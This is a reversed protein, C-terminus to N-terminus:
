PRFNQILRFLSGPGILRANLQNRNGSLTDLLVHNHVDSVPSNLSRHTPVQTAPPANWRGKGTLPDLSYGAAKGKETVSWVGNDNIILPDTRQVSVDESRTMVINDKINIVPVYTEFQSGLSIQTAGEASFKIVMQELFALSSTNGLASFGPDLIFNLFGRDVVTSNIAAGNLIREATAKDKDNFSVTLRHGQADYHHGSNFNGLSRGSDHQRYDGLEGALSDVYALDVGQEQAYAYMQSLLDRDDRTLFEYPHRGMNTLSMGDAGDVVGPEAGFFLRSIMLDRGYGPVSVASVPTPVATAKLEEWAARRENITFDGGEDHAILSLQDRTLGKFPNNDAGNLFGTAQRARALLDVDETSPVQADYQAKNTLYRNGTIPEILRSSAQGVRPEARTAAESLQRALTSVTSVSSMGGTLLSVDTKEEVSRASVSHAAIGSRSALRSNSPSLSATIDIM